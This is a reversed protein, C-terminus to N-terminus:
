KSLPLYTKKPYHIIQNELDLHNLWDSTTVKLWGKGLYARTDVHRSYSDKSFVKPFPSIARLLCNGQKGCHKKSRQLIKQWKWCTKFQQRCVREAQFLKFNLLNWLILITTSVSQLVKKVEMCVYLTYYKLRTWMSLQRKTSNVLLKIHKLHHCKDRFICSFVTPFPPFAPYWWKRSKRMNNEYTM